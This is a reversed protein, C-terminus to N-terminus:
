QSDEQWAATVSFLPQGQAQEIVIEMEGLGPIEPPLPCFVITLELPVQVLELARDTDGGTLKVAEATNRALAVAQDLLGTEESALKAWLFCRICGAAALAFVLVMVLLEMLVLSGKHKM